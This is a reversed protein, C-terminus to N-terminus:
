VPPCSSGKIRVTGTPEQFKALNQNERQRKGISTLRKATNRRKEEQLVLREQVSAHADRSPRVCCCLQVRGPTSKTPGRHSRARFPTQPLHGSYTMDSCTRLVQAEEGHFWERDQMRLALSGSPISTPAPATTQQPSARTGAPTREDWRESKFARKHFWSLRALICVVTERNEWPREQGNQIQTQGNPPNASGLARRWYRCSELWGSCLAACQSAPANARKGENERPAARVVLLTNVTSPSQDGLM